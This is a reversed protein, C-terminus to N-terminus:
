ELFAQAQFGLLLSPQTPNPKSVLGRCHHYIPLITPRIISNRKTTYICRTQDPRSREDIGVRCLLGCSLLILVLKSTNREVSECRIQWRLLSFTPLISTSIRDLFLNTSISSGGPILRIRLNQHAAILRSVNKGVDFGVEYGMLPPLDSCVSWSPLM